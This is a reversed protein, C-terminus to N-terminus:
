KQCENQIVRYHQYINPISSSYTSGSPASAKEHHYKSLFIERWFKQRTKYDKKHILNRCEKNQIYSSGVRNTKKRGASDKTQEKSRRCWLGSLWVWHDTCLQSKDLSKEFCFLCMKRLWTEVWYRQFGVLHLIEWIHYITNTWVLQIYKEYDTCLQSKDLSKGLCFLCM